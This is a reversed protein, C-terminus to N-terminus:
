VDTFSQIYLCSVACHTSVFEEPMFKSIPPSMHYALAIVKLRFKNSLEDLVFKLHLFFVIIYRGNNRPSVSYLFVGESQVLASCPYDSGGINEEKRIKLVLIGNASFTNITKAM